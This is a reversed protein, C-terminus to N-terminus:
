AQQVPIAVTRSSPADRRVRGSSGSGFAAGSACEERKLTEVGGGRAHGTTAADKGPHHGGAQEDQQHTLQEAIARKSGDAHDKGGRFGFRNWRLGGVLGELLQRALGGGLALGELPILGGSRRGHGFLLLCVGIGRMGQRGAGLRRRHLGDRV